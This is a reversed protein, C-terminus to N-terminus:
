PVLLTPDDGPQAARGPAHDGEAVPATRGPLVDLFAPVRNHPELKM